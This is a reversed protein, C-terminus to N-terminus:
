PVNLGLVGDGRKSVVYDGSQTSTHGAHWECCPAFNHLKFLYFIFYFWKCGLGVGGQAKSQGAFDEETDQGSELWM